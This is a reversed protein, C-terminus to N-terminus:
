FVDIDALTFKIKEPPITSGFDQFLAPYSPIAKYHLSFLTHLSTGPSCHFQVQKVGLRKALSKITNMVETFNKEDVGEIDGILFGSKINIWIKSDGIRIVRAPSYTKYELYAADRYVGAFNEKTVSNPIGKQNIIYKKLITKIYRNYFNKSFSFRNAFSEIRLGSIPIMFCDMMETLKWGLKNVAGHYSNQNPFGFILHIGLARCLEFTLNSLDVFMGKYRHQPHTMTDASQAALIIETGQQIFCPIVGYYAVPIRQTNYAIFGAYECGTYATNYKKPFYDPLTAAGYVAEHLLAVDKLNDKNLRVVTYEKTDSNIMTAQLSQM